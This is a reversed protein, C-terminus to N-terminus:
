SPRPAITKLAAVLADRQAAVSADPGTARFFLPGGELEVVAGLMRWDPKPTFGEAMPREKFMYTGAKDLLTIRLGDTEFADLSGAAPEGEEVFQKRWRDINEDVPGGGGVGFFFAILEPEEDDGEVKPWTFRALRMTGSAPQATWEPPCKMSFAGIQVTGDDTAAPPTDAAPETRLPQREPKLSEPKSAEATKEPTAAPQESAAPRTEASSEDGVAKPTAPPSAPERCASVAMAATAAFVISLLPRNM